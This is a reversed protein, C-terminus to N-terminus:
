GGSADPRLCSPAITRRIPGGTASRRPAAPRLAARHGLAPPLPELGPHGAVMTGRALRDPQIAAADVNQGGALAVGERQQQKQQKQPRDIVAVAHTEGESEQQRRHRQVGHPLGMVSQQTEDDMGVPGFRHEGTLVRPKRKAQFVRALRRTVADGQLPPIPLRGIHINRRATRHRNPHQNGGLPATPQPRAMNSHQSAKRQTQKLGPTPDGELGGRQDIRSRSAPPRQRRGRGTLRAATQVFQARAALVVGAKARIRGAIRRAPNGPLRRSSGILQQHFAEDILRPRFQPQIPPQQVGLGHFRTQPLETLPYQLGFVIAM